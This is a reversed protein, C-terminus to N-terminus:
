NNSLPQVVIKYVQGAVDKRRRIDGNPSIHYLTGTDYGAALCANSVPNVAITLINPIGTLMRSTTGGVYRYVAFSEADETRSRIWLSEDSANYQIQEPIELGTLTFGIHSGRLYLVEKNLADAVYLDQNNVPAIANIGRDMQSVFQVRAVNEGPGITLVSDGTAVYVTGNDGAAAATVGGPVAVIRSANRRYDWFTVHDNQRAPVVLFEGTGPLYLLQTVFGLESLIRTIEGNVTHRYVSGRFRDYVYIFDRNVPALIHNPAGYDGYIRSRHLGDHSLQVLPTYNDALAWWRSYGPTITDLRSIQTESQEGLVSVGYVYTSGARVESDRYRTIDAPINRFTQLTDGLAARYVRYGTLDPSDVRDWDLTVSEPASHLNLGFVNKDGVHPDFPNIRERGSCNWLVLLALLVVVTQLGSRLATMM